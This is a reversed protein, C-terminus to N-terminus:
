SSTPTSGSQGMFYRFSVAVLASGFRVLSGPGPGAWQKLRCSGSGPGLDLALFGPSCSGAPRSAVGWGWLEAGVSEGEMPRWPTPILHSTAMLSCLPKNGGRSGYLFDRPSTDPTETDGGEQPDPPSMAGRGERPRTAVGGPCGLQRAGGRGREQGPRWGAGLQGAMPAATNKPHVKTAKPGAKASKKIVTAPSGSRTMIKTAPYTLPNPLRPLVGFLSIRFSSSSRPRAQSGSDQEQETTDSEKAVRHVTARWARRNM